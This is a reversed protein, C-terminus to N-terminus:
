QRDAGKLYRVLSSNPNDFVISKDTKAQGNLMKKIEGVSTTTDNSAENVIIAIGDVAFQSQVAPLNHAKLEKLEDATLMRSLFAFRASDALLLSVANNEARYAMQPNAGPNAAKFVYLEEDLIPAFSEDAVFKATGSTYTDENQAVAPKSRNCNQFVFLLLLAVVVLTLNNKM